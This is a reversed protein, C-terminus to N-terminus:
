TNGNGLLDLLSPDFYVIGTTRDKSPNSKSVVTVYKDFYDLGKIEKILNEVYSIMDENYVIWYIHKAPHTPLSRIYAALIKGSRMSNQM